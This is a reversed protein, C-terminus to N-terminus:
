NNSYPITDGNPASMAPRSDDGFRIVDTPDQRRALEVPACFVITAFLPAIIAAIYFHM